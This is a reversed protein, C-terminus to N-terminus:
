KELIRKWYEKNERISRANNRVVANYNYYTERKKALENGLKQKIKNFPKLMENELRTQLEKNILLEATNTYLKSIHEITLYNELIPTCNPRVSTKQRNEDKYFYKQTMENFISNQETKYWNIVDTNLTQIITSYSVHYKAKIKDLQKKALPSIYINIRKNKPKTKIM